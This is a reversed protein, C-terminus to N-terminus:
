GLESSIAILDGLPLTIGTNLVQRYIAGVDAQNGLKSRFKAKPASHPLVKEPGSFPIRPDGQIAFDSKQATNKPRLLTSMNEKAALPQTLNAPHLKTIAKFPKPPAVPLKTKLMMLVQEPRHCTIM